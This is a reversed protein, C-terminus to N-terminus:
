SVKKKFQSLGLFEQVIENILKFDLWKEIDERKEKHDLAMEIIEYIGDMFEPNQFMFMPDKNEDLKPEGKEDLWPELAQIQLYLPNYSTTFKTLKNLDKLKCSYVKHVKGERDKIESYFGFFSNTEEM